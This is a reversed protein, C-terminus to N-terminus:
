AKLESTGGRTNTSIQSMHVLRLPPLREDQKPAKHTQRTRRYNRNHTILSETGRLIRLWGDTLTLNFRQQAARLGTIPGDSLRDRVHQQQIDNEVTNWLLWSQRLLCRPVAPTRDEGASDESGGRPSLGASERERPQPCIPLRADSGRGSSFIRKFTKSSLTHKNSPQWHFHLRPSTLLSATKQESNNLNVRDPRGKLGTIWTTQEGRRGRGRGGSRRPWGTGAFMGPMLLAEEWLPPTKEGGIALSQLWPCM